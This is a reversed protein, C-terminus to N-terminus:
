HSKPLTKLTFRPLTSQGFVPLFSTGVVLLKGASLAQGEHMYELVKIRPNVRSDLISLSREHEHKHINHPDLAHGKCMKHYNSILTHSCVPTRVCPCPIPGMAGIGLIPAAPICNPGGSSPICGAAGWSICPSSGEPM